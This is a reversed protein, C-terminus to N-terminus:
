LRKLIEDPTGIGQGRRISRVIMLMRGLYNEGVCKYVDMGWFTDGWTNGEILNQTDTNLLSELLEPNRYSFKILLLEAMLPLRANDWMKRHRRNMQLQRSAKKIKKPDDEEVCYTVWDSNFPCKQAQYAAEVSKFTGLNYDVRCPYFNSLFRNRGFFSNIM